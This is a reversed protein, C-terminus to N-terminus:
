VNKRRNIEGLIKQIEKNTLQINYDSELQQKIEEVSKSKEMIKPIINCIDEIYNWPFVVWRWTIEDGYYDPTYKSGQIHRLAATKIEKPNLEEIYNIAVIMSEGTDTIDDVILIKKGTFDIKFPYKIQAKGDPTATIGWHEVKLSLLDKVGLHDCLVRSLVWGGRALGVIIDPHFGSEIINSAVKQSLEDFLEWSM